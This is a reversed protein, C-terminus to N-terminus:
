VGGKNNVLLHLDNADDKVIVGEHYRISPKNDIILSAVQKQMLIHMEDALRSM